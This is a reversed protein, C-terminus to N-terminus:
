GQRSERWLELLAAHLEAPRVPKFMLRFGPSDLERLAADETDGTVLVAGPPRPCHGQLWAILQRGDTEGGLRHDSVVLDPCPAGRQFAEMARDGSPYVQVACGWLALLRTYSDRVMADDEVLLVRCGGLEATPGSGAQRTAVLQPIPAASASVASPPGAVDVHFTSGCGPASRVGIEHGLLLALRQVIALGLGLGQSRDRQPNHLQVFEQFISAQSEVPIGPGNDRVQIQYGGRNRRRPLVVVRGGEPTYRLANSLLNGLMRELQMPDSCVEGHAPLVLLEIHRRRAAEEYMDRLRLLLPYLDFGTMQVKVGGADLRSIDLLANLLASMAQSTNDIRELLSAQEAAHREQKLAAVLLSLAHMPQRLDHSAAALFRTKDHNAQQAADRQERLALTAQEVRQELQSRSHELQRAMLNIGRALRDFSPIRSAPVRVGGQGAGIAHAAQVLSQIRNDIRSSFRRVMFWASGLVGALLAIVKLGFVLLESQVSRTDVAVIVYGRVSAAALDLGEQPLDDLRVVPSRVPELHAISSEAHDTIAAHGQQVSRALLSQFGAPLARGPEPNAPYVALMERNAGFVAAARVSNERAVGQALSYLADINMSFLGYDAAVALQRALLEARQQLQAQLDDARQQIVYTGWVAAFLLVPLMALWLLRVRLDAGRRRLGLRDRWRWWLASM